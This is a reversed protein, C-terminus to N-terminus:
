MILTSPCVFEAIQSVSASINLLFFHFQFNKKCSVKIHGSGYIFPLHILVFPNSPLIQEMSIYRCMKSSQLNLNTNQECFFKSYLNNIKGKSIFFPQVKKVNEVAM